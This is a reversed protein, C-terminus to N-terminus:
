LYLGYQSRALVSWQWDAYDMDLLLKRCGKRISPVVKQYTQRGHLFKITELGGQSFSGTPGRVVLIM